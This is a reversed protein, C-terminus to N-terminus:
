VVVATTVGFLTSLFNTAGVILAIVLIIVVGRRAFDNLEGGWILMGGTVTIAILSLALAFQGTISNRLTTLPAEWALGTATAAFAEPALAIAALALLWLSNKYRVFKM